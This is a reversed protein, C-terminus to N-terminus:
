KAPNVEPDNEMQGDAHDAPVIRKGKKRTSRRVKGNGVSVLSCPLDETMEKEADADM